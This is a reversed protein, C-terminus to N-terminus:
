LERRGELSKILTVEDAYELDVGVPIGYAIRSVFVGMPRVLRALYIATTEGEITPNTAMIVEKVGGKKIRDLLGQVKLDAPGRGDLPSLSGHLVHYLGNYSGTREMAYLTSPEEVVLIKSQERKSSKCISCLPEETLNQCASCFHLQEKLESITQTLQQVERNPMKLLYFALRQATRPGIGPLHKLQDIVRQLPTQQKDSL